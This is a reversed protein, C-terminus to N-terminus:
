TSTLTAACLLYFPVNFNFHTQHIHKHTELNIRKVVKLRSNSCTLEENKM